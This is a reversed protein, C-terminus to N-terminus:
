WPLKKISLSKIEGPEQVELRKIEGPEKVEINTINGPEERQQKIIDGPEKPNQYPNTIITGSSDDNTQPYEKIKDSKAVDSSGWSGGGGTGGGTFLEYWKESESLFDSVEKSIIEAAKQLDLEFNTGVEGGVGKALGAEWSFKIRSLSLEGEGKFRAQAGVGVAGRGGLTIIGGLLKTEGTAEVGAIAGIGGEVSGKVGGSEAARLEGDLGAYAKVYAAPTVSVESVLGGDGEYLNFKDQYQAGVVEAKYGGEVGGGDKLNANVEWEGGSEFGLIQFPGEKENTEHNYGYLGDAYQGFKDGYLKVRTNQKLHDKVKTSAKNDHEYEAAQKQLSDDIKGDNKSNEWGGKWTTSESKLGAYDSSKQEKTRYSGETRSGDSTSQFDGSYTSKKTFQDNLFSKVQQDQVSKIYTGMSNDKGYLTYTGEYSTHTVQSNQDQTYALLGKETMRYTVDAAGAPMAMCCIVVFLLPLVSKPTNM